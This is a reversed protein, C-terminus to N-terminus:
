KLYKELHLVRLADSVIFFSGTILILSGKKCITKSVRVSEKLDSTKYFKIDSKHKMNKLINYLFESKLSRHYSSETLILHNTIGSLTNLIASYDKDDMLGFIVADFKKNM